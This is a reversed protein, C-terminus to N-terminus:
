HHSMTSKGATSKKVLTDKAPDGHLITSHQGTILNYADGAIRKHMHHFRTMHSGTQGKFAENPAYQLEKAFLDVLCGPLIGDEGYLHPFGEVSKLERAWAFTYLLTDSTNNFLSMFKFAVMGSLVLALVTMWLPDDIYLAGSPDNFVSACTMIIYGTSSSIVTIFFVAMMEYISVTGHLFAVAGGAKLVFDHVDSSAKKWDTAQLVIDVFADKCYGGFYHATFGTYLGGFSFCLSALTTEEEEVIYKPLPGTLDREAKTMMFKILQAAMRLPRSLLIPWAGRLLSGFHRISIFFGEIGAACSHPKHQISAVEPLFDRGNPHKWGVPVVLVKGRGRVTDHEIYGGRYGGYVGDVGHVRVNEVHEGYGSYAQRFPMSVPDDNPVDQIPTFFWCCVIYSTVMQMMGLVTECIWISGFVYLALALNWMPPYTIEKALSEYSHSNVSISRSQIDGVSAAIAYFFVLMFVLTLTVFASILPVVPNLTIYAGWDFICETAAFIIGVAEDIKLYAHRTTQLMLYALAGLAVGTLFTLVRAQEGYISRYIFNYQYYASSEDYPSFFIGILFFFAGVALVAIGAILSILILPGAFKRMGWLFLYGLACALVTVIILIPFGNRINGVAGAIHASVAHRGTILENRLGNPAGELARCLKGHWLETPYSIQDSVSQSIEFTLSQLYTIGNQGVGGQSPKPYVFARGLCPITSTNSSPCSSVCTRSNYDLKRPYLGERGAESLGCVYLYPKDKVEADIGCIRGAYDMAHTLRNMNAQGYVLSWLVMMVMCSLTLFFVFLTSKDTCSRSVVAGKSDRPFADKSDGM